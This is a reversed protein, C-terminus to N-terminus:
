AEFGEIRNNVQWTEAARWGAERGEICIRNTKENNKNRSKKSMQSKSNDIGLFDEMETEWYNSREITGAERSWRM